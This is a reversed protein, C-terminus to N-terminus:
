IMHWIGPCSEKKFQGGMIWDWDSLRAQLVMVHLM